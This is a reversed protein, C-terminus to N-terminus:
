PASEWKSKGRLFLFPGRQLLPTWAPLQKWRTSEVRADPSNGWCTQKEDCPHDAARPKKTNFRFHFPASTSLWASDCSTLFSLHLLFFSPRHNISSSGFIKNTTSIGGYQIYITYLITGPAQLAQVNPYLKQNDISLNFHITSFLLTLVSFCASQVNFM